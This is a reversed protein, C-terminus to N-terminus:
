GALQLTAMTQRLEAWRVVEGVIILAPLGKLTESLFPATALNTVHLSQTPLTANAVVAVPTAGPLGGAQLSASIEPLRRVGMYICLTAGTKALAAWDVATQASRKGACEHGTVFVVASAHERHTLPVGISAGAAIAATVGPVVECPIDEAVLAAIEEGGRGFVLPDGGKLRVVHRGQRAEEILIRCTTEQAVHHIGARKGVYIRKAEPPCFELLAANALDDYVVVDAQALARQGRITLLDVAGPGAGVLTVRGNTTGRDYHFM